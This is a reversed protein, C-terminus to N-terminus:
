VQPMTITPILNKTDVRTWVKPMQPPEFGNGTQKKGNTKPEGLKSQLIIIFAMAVLTLVVLFIGLQKLGLWWYIGFIDIVITFMLIYKIAELTEYDWQKITQMAKGIKTTNM